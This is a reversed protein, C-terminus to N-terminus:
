LTESVQGSGGLLDAGIESVADVLGRPEFVDRGFNRADELDVLLRPADVLARSRFEEVEGCLDGTLFFGVLDLM